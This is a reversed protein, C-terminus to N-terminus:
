EEEASWSCIHTDTMKFYHHIHKLMIIDAVIKKSEENPSTYFFLPDKFLVDGKASSSDSFEINTVHKEFLARHKAIFPRGFCDFAERTIIFNVLGDLDAVKDDDEKVGMEADELTEYCDMCYMGEIQSTDNYYKEGITGDDYCGCNFVVRQGLCIAGYAEMCYFPQLFALVGRIDGEYFRVM